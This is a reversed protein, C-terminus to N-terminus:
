LDTVRSTIVLDSPGVVQHDDVGLELWIDYIFTKGKGISLNDTDSPLILIEVEGQSANTINVQAGTSDLNIQDTGGIKDKATFHVTGGTIDLPSGNSNIVLNLTLSEGQAFTIKSMTSAEEIDGTINFASSVTGTITTPLSVNGTITTPLSVTGTLSTVVQISVGGTAPCFLGLSALSISM